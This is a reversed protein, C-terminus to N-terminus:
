TVVLCRTPANVAPTGYGFEWQTKATWYVLALGAFTTILGLAWESSRPCGVSLSAPLHRAISFFWCPLGALFIGGGIGLSALKYAFSRRKLAVESLILCYLRLM